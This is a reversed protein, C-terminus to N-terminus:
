PGADVRENVRENSIREVAERLEALQRAMAALLQENRPATAPQVPSDAPQLTADPSSPQAPGGDGEGAWLDFPGRRGAGAM